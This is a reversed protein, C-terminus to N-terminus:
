INSSEEDAFDDKNSVQTGPIRQLLALPFPSGLHQLSILQWGTPPHQKYWPDKFLHSYVWIRSIEPAVNSLNLGDKTLRARSRHIGSVVPLRGDAYREYWLRDFHNAGQWLDMSQALFADTPQQHQQLHAVIRGYDATPPQRQVACFVALGAMVVSFVTAARHWNWGILLLAIVPLHIWSGGLLYRPWLAAQAMWAHLQAAGFGALLFVFAIVHQTLVTSPQHRAARWVHIAMGVYILLFLPATSEWGSFTARSFCWASGSLFYASFDSVILLPYPRDHEVYFMAIPVVPVTLLVLAMNVYVCERWSTQRRWLLCLWILQSAVLVNIGFFHTWPLVCGSLVLGCAARRRCASQAPTTVAEARAAYHLWALGHLSSFFVLPAYPLCQYAQTLWFKNLAIAPLLAARILPTAFLHKLIRHWVPVCGVALLVCPLRLQWDAATAPDTVLGVIIRLLPPHSSGASMLSDPLGQRIAHVFLLEDGLLGNSVSRWLLVALMCLLTLVAVATEFHNATRNATHNADLASPQHRPHASSQHFSQHSPPTM